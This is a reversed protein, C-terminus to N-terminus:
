LMAEDVPYVTHICSITLRWSSIPQRWWTIEKWVSNGVGKSGVKWAATQKKTTKAGTELDSVNRNKAMNRAQMNYLSFWSYIPAYKNLHRNPKLQWMCWCRSKRVSSSDPRAHKMFRHVRSPCDVSTEMCTQYSLASIFVSNFYVLLFIFTSRMKSSFFFDGLAFLYFYKTSTGINVVFMSQSSKQWRQNNRRPFLYPTFSVLFKSSYEGAAGYTSPQLTDRREWCSSPPATGYHSWKTLTHDVPSQSPPSLFFFCFLVSTIRIWKGDARM